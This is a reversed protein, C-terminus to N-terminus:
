GQSRDRKKARIASAVAIVVVLMVIWVPTWNVGEGPERGVFVAAVDAQSLACDYLRVDDIAGDFYEGDITDGGIKGSHSFASDVDGLFSNEMEGNVYLRVQSDHDRTIAVFTWRGSRLDTTGEGGRRVGQWGYHLHGNSLLSVAHSGREFGLITQWNQGTERARIWATLTFMDTQINPESGVDVYDDMGDFDLAGGFKGAVWAADDMNYLTGVNTGASDATTNGAAEDFKWWAVLRGKRRKATKRKAALIRKRPELTYPKADVKFPGAM